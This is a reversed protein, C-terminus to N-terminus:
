TTAVLDRPTHVITLCRMRRAPLSVGRSVKLKPIAQKTLKPPTVLENDIELNISVSKCLFIQNLSTTLHHIPSPSISPPQSIIFLSYVLPTKDM